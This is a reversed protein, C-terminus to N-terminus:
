LNIRTTGCTLPGIPSIYGKVHQVAVPKTMLRLVAKSAIAGV